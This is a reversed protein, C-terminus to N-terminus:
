LVELEPHQEQFMPYAIFDPYHRLIKIRHSWLDITIENAPRLFNPHNEGGRELSFSCTSYSCKVRHPQKLMYWEGRELWCPRNFIEKVSPKYSWSTVDERWTKFHELTGQSRALMHAAEIHHRLGTDDECRVECAPCKIQISTIHPPGTSTVIDNSTCCM